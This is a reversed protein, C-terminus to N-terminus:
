ATKRILFTATDGAASVSEREIEIPTKYFESSEEILGEALDAFPCKSSYDLRIADDTEDRCTITPLSADPHLKRVEVHIYNEVSKLFEFLEQKADVKVPFSASFTKFLHHGFANVLKPVPMETRRSLEVVLDILEQYDYTGTATYAGKSPVESAIIIEETMDPSFVTDVMELFETFVIGKM